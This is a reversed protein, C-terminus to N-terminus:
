ATVSFFVNDLSLSTISTVAANTTGTPYNTTASAVTIAGTTLVELRIAARIAAANCTAWATALVNNPPRYGSPLTFLTGTAASCVVVGRLQVNDDTKRYAAVAYGSGFNTWTAALVMATWPDLPPTDDADWWLELSDDTPAENGVWLTDTVTGSGGGAGGGHWVPFEPSGGQFSVWGMIDTTPADGIFNEVVAQVDGFVQPIYATLTNGVLKIAKARYVGPYSAM